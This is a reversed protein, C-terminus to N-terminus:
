PADFRTPWDAALYAMVAVAAVNDALQRPDVKDLTDAATHHVDFYTRGDVRLGLAPVGYATLPEIDTGSHGPKVTTAGLERLLSAVAAVRGVVRRQAAPDKVEVDFGRPAFGGSDSEIALVHRSGEERHAEAYARAGRVGNEENTFLVVRITRRPTLGLRRLTTLVQMMVVCGAGDDHAGQGVDWSDLHAGIVVIEEPLERGRLEGIVNASEADPLQASELTLRVKVEGGDAALRALWDADETTVSAAPIKAVGEQYRMAGTHLTRLSHATVSRVLVAAAGLKAAAIAGGGRYQVVEGYGSGHVDSYAPLAVNYLVIAGKVQAAKAALEAFTQVVVVRATLGGRPTAVSGGLGLVPLPRSVPAVVEASEHGRRWVPVMVKEKRAVHGDRALEAATWEIAAALGPSGSLRHGIRDTLHALKRYAGDDARAAAIIRAVTARYGDAGDLLLAVDAAPSSVEPLSGPAAGARAGPAPLKVGREDERPAGLDVGRQTDDIWAAPKSASSSPAGCAALASILALAANRTVGDARARATTLFRCAATM